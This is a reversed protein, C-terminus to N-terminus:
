VDMSGGAVPTDPLKKRKAALFMYSEPVNGLAFEGDKIAYLWENNKEYYYMGTIHGKGIHTAIVFQGRKFKPQRM